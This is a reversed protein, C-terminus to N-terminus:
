ASWEELRQLKARRQFAPLGKAKLAAGLAQPDFKPEQLVEAVRQLALAIRQESEAGVSIRLFHSTSEGYAAGPVVGIHDRLLMQLALDFGSNPSSGISVFFYFTSSGPLYSLGIQDMYGAIRNRKETVARVQPLTIRIIDDFHTAVYYMLISPACTILHQNLKLVLAIFEPRALVYGIRWGSMGMNKSLSNIVIVGDLDPVVHAMSHFGGEVVFDSYAEDVLVYIGRARCTRYIECLEDRTYLRGSPNNPNNMVLVRARPTIHRAFDAIACDYPLFVPRCDLLRAHEQYSLWAPEPILVDDGPDLIAQLAMFIAMKSGATVLVSAEPNVTAGYHDNYYKAIKDRLEPIGRSHSYHFGKDKDLKNFDFLPLDFFAEGLSLTLIDEGQHKLGYILQNIYISLAEDVGAVRGSVQLQVINSTRDGHAKTM